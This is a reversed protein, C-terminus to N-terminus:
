PATQRPILITYPYVLRKARPARSTHAVRLQVQSLADATGATMNAPPRATAHLMVMYSAAGTVVGRELDGANGRALYRGDPDFLLIEPSQESALNPFSPREPFMESPLGRWAQTLERQVERALWASRTDAEANTRTRTTVASASLILPVAVAIVGLAVVAEMLTLGRHWKRQADPSFIRM